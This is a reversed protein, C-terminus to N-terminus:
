HQSEASMLNKYLNGHNSFLFYYTLKNKTQSCCDITSNPM